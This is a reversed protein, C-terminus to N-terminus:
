NVHYIKYIYNKSLSTIESVRKIADKTSLGSEVFNEVMAIIDDNNVNPKLEGLTGEIVIVMEGKLTEPDLTSLEELGARIYEEHKKTLERAICAKRNGLIAFMDQLTKDIRHPSEYFILTEKRKALERLEELRVSSKANLFGHFYFHDTCLGSAVLANLAANPGSIASININNELSQKIRFERKVPILKGSPSYFYCVYEYKESNSEDKTESDTNTTKNDQNINKMNDFKNYSTFVPNDKSVSLDPSYSESKLFKYLFFSLAIILCCLFTRFFANM